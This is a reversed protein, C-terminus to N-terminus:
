RLQNSGPFNGPQAPLRKLSGSTRGLVSVGGRSSQVPNPAYKYITGDPTGLYAPAGEADSVIKDGDSYEEDRVPDTGPTHTHYTGANLGLSRLLLGPRNGPESSFPTGERPPTYSYDGFGLWKQYVRGAYENGRRQSTPNIDQLAAIGAADATPYNDGAEALLVRRPQSSVGEVAATPAGADPLGADTALPQTQTQAAMGGASFPDHNVPVLSVGSFEPQHDVPVLSFDRMIFCWSTNAPGSPTRLM